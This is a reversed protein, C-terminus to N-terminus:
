DRRRERTRGTVFFAVVAVCLVAGSCVLILGLSAPNVDSAATNSSGTTDAPTHQLEAQTPPQLAQTARSRMQRLRRTLERGGVVYVSGALFVCVAIM